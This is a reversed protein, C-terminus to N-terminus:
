EVSSRIVGDGEFLGELIEVYGDSGRLGLVVDVEVPADNRLVRVFTRGAARTVSRVPLVLADFRQDVLITVDATLGSRIREDPRLFTMTARYTPVGEITRAAPDISVVTADYVQEAGYADFTLTASAGVVVGSLDVEPIDAHIEFMTDAIVSAVASGITVAEGLDADMATVIGDFPARLVTNQMRADTAAINAVAADVGATAQAISEPTAGAQKFALAANATDVMNQKLTVDADAIQLATRNAARQASVAQRVNDLVIRSASITSRSASVETLYAAITTPSIDTARQTAAALRDLFFTMTDLRQMARQLAIDRAPGDIALSELDRAWANLHAESIRREREADIAAQFDATGFSLKPSETADNTFLADTGKRIASDAKAFESRLENAIDDYLSELSTAGEAAVNVRHSQADSLRRAANAVDTQAIAVEEIRTGAVLGALIARAEALAAVRQSREARLDTADLTVLSAGALVRDGVDVHVQAVRGSVSFTLTADNAPKISGVVEVSRVLDRQEVTAIDYAPPDPRSAQVVFFVVVALVSATIWLWPSRFMKKM